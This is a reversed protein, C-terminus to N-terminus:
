WRGLGAIVVSRIAQGSLSYPGIACMTICGASYMLHEHGYSLRNDDLRTARVLQESAEGALLQLDTKQRM